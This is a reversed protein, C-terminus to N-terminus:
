RSTPRPSCAWSATPSSASTPSTRRIDYPLSKYQFKQFVLLAAPATLLTYGDPAAKAVAETGVIYAAGARNDVIVPQGIAPSLEGAVARTMIDNPGGAAIPVIWRLPKSPYNSPSAPAQAAAAGCCALAFAGAIRSLTKM